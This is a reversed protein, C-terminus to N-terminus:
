KSLRRNIEAVVSEAGHTFDNLGRADNICSTEASGYIYLAAHSVVANKATSLLGFTSAKPVYQKENNSVTGCTSCWLNRGNWKDVGISQMECDCTPCKNSM